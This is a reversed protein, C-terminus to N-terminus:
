PAGVIDLLVATRSSNLRMSSNVKHLRVRNLIAYM